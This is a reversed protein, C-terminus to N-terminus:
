VWDRWGGHKITKKTSALIAGARYACLLGLIGARRVGDHYEGLKVQAEESNSAPEPSMTQAAEFIEDVPGTTLDDAFLRTAIAKSGNSTDSSLM